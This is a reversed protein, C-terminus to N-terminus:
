NAPAMRVLRLGISAIPDDAIGFNRVGCRASWWNSKYSGGRLVHAGTDKTVIPNKGAHQTYGDKVYSDAVWEWVNGLMDHLGWPNADLEGVPRTTPDERRPVRYWARQPLITELKDSDELPLTDAGAATCAYEWEAETPLRFKNAGLVPDDSLRNLRKIFQQAQEWTVQAVPHRNNPKQRHNLSSVEAWESRTVEYKGMWFGDVCVQHAPLENINPVTRVPDSGEHEAGMQFCGDDIWVFKMGTIPEHWEARNEAVATNAFASLFLVVWGTTIVARGM